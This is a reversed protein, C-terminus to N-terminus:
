LKLFEKISPLAHMEKAVTVLTETFDQYKESKGLSSTSPSLHLTSYSHLLNRARAYRDEKSDAIMLRPKNRSVTTLSSMSPSAQLLNPSSTFPSAKKLPSLYSDM